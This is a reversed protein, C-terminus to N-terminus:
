GLHFKGTLVHIKAHITAPFSRGLIITENPTRNIIVFDSPFLFTDIGVQINEVVGLPARKTMDAMEIVMNTKRLNTLKLFEFIGRPMVNLSAGLDAMAYFNFDGITCPLTFNRLNQEKPPLKCQLVKTTREENNQAVCFKARNSGNFPAFRRFKGYKVEELQKVEENLPCEKNLHPRIIAALGDVNSSSSINRSSTGDHWKQAHDAMTQIATLAQTPPLKRPNTALVCYGDLLYPTDTGASVLSWSPVLDLVGYGSFEI